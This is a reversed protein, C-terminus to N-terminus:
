RRDVGLASYRNRFRHGLSSAETFEWPAAIEAIKIRRPDSGRLEGSCRELCAGDIFQRVGGLPEFLRYLTSRSVNFRQCLAEVGVDGNLRTMLFQQMAGLSTPRTQTPNYLM